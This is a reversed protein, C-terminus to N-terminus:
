SPSANRAPGARRSCRSRAISARSGSSRRRRCRSRPCRGSRRRGAVLEVREAVVPVAVDVAAHEGYKPPNGAGRDRTPKPLLKRPHRGDVYGIFPPHINYGLLEQLREPLDRASRPRFSSCTTRSRVCGRRPTTCSSASARASRHPQRRRRAVPQRPLAAAFRGADRHHDDSHRRGPVRRAWRHSGPVLVTGGNDATFDCLPWMANVVIEDHPRPLPYIADDPHLPQAREGPGIEIGTPASLQYHGLVRDLVGLVLPNTAPADFTRTKAFLAYVRRTKRGEFDDRGFPTSELIEALDARALSVAEPSMVHEVLAWGDRDLADVVADVSAETRLVRTRNGSDDAVEEGATYTLTYVRRHHRALGTHEEIARGAPRRDEPRRGRGEGLTPEGVRRHVVDRGGGPDRAQDDVPVEVRLIREVGGHELVDAVPQGLLAARTGPAALAHRHPGQEGDPAGVRGADREQQPM